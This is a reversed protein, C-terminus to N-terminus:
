RFRAAAPGISARRVPKSLAALVGVVSVGAGMVLLAGRVGAGSVILAGINLGVVLPLTQSLTVVAQVRSLYQAPTATLLVPAVHSGFLGLGVGVIGAPALLLLRSGAALGLGCTGTGALIVGVCLAIGPRRSTGRVMVTIVVVASMVTEAGLVLGAVSAPWGHSRVLLPVLLSTVPLMCLAVAAVVLLLPRLVADRAAVGVGAFARRLLSGQRATPADTRLRSRAVVLLVFIVAFSASNLGAAAALGAAAVIVGGLPAGLLSVIQQAISRAAMAKGLAEPPALRRPITGSSPTYFANSIGTVVAASLLLWVPTGLWVVAVALGATVGCMMGDSLVMVLWPGKSDAVAGGVLMLVLGPVTAATIVLAALSAGHSTAAWGLGFTQIQSGLLSVTIGCLWWWYSVPVKSDPQGAAEDVAPSVALDAEGATM